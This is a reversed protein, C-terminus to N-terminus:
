LSTPKAAPHYIFIEGPWGSDSVVAEIQEEGYYYQPGDPTELEVPPQGDIGPFVYVTMAGMPTKFIQKAVKGYKPDDIFNHFWKNEEKLLSEKILKSLQRRTLQVTIM